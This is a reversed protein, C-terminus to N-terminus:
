GVGEKQSESLTKAQKFNTKVNRLMTWESFM